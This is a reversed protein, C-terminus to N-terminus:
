RTQPLGIKSFWFGASAKLRCCGFSGGSRGSGVLVCCPEIVLGHSGMDFATPRCCGTGSGRRSVTVTVFFRKTLM